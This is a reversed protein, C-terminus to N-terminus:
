LVCVLTIYMLLGKLLSAFSVSFQCCEHFKKWASTVRGNVADMCDGSQDIMDDLFCFKAVQELQIDSLKLYQQATPSPPLQNACLKCVFSPCEKLSGKKNTCKLTDM